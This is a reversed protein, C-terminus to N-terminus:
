YANKFVEKYECLSCKLIGLEFKNVGIARSKKRSFQVLRVTKNKCIPCILM